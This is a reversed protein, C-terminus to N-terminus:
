NFLGNFMRRTLRTLTSRSQQRVKAVNSQGKQGRVSEKLVYDKGYRLGQVLVGTGARRKGILARRTLPVFLKPRETITKRVIANEDDGPLDFNRVYKTRQRTIRNSTIPGRTGFEVWKLYEDEKTSWVTARIVRGSIKEVKWSRTLGGTRPRGFASISRTRKVLRDRATDATEFVAKALVQDLVKRGFKEFASGSQEVTLSIPM